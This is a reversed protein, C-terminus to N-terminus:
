QEGIVRIEKELNIDFKKKVEKCAIEALELVDKCTAGGKNVIFGCHKESIYAGGVSKGKLGAEMILKGAFNNLPRKFTSGASPYEIPQKENRTKNIEKMKALIEEKNGKKLEIQAELVTIKEKLIRSNRYEFGCQSNKLKIIQGNEIVTVSKIIDKLENGYAGANMCVGGGITGPIGSAFEFGSLSNELAFKSIASLTAGAQANIINGDIQINNFNKFIKIIIGRFGKDSVLLNSGNGMVYYNINNEECYNICKKIEDINKPLLMIDVKGGIKFTTHKAML